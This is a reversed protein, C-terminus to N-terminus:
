WHVMAARGDPMYMCFLEFRTFYQQTIRSVMDTFNDGATYKENWPCTDQAIPVWYRDEESSGLEPALFRVEELASLPFCEYRHINNLEPVYQGGRTRKQKQRLHVFNPIFQGQWDPVTQGTRHPRTGDLWELFMYCSGSAEFILHLQSDYCLFLRKQFM